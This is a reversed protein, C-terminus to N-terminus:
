KLVELIKNVKEIRGMKKYSECETELTLMQIKMGEFEHMVTKSIDLKEWVGQHEFEVESMIDVQVDDIIYTSFYSVIHLKENAEYGIPKVVYKDFLRSVKNYDKKLIILDIDHVEVDVNRLALSVSMTLIWKIHNDKFTKYIYKLVEINKKPIKNNM